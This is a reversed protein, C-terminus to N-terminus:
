DNLAERFRSFQNSTQRYIELRSLEKPSYNNQVFSFTKPTATTSNGNQIAKSEEQAANVSSISIAAKKSLTADIEKAGNMVDTLDIVPRITPQTDMSSNVVSSVKKIANKMSEIANRGVSASADAVYDSMNDFGIAMGEDAYQGLEIFKKSPSHSKIAKQAAEYAANAMAAAAAAVEAIKSQIGETYGSSANRGAQVFMARCSNAEAVTALITAYIAGIPALRKEVIGQAVGETIYNGVERKFLKSPSAIEAEERAAMETETIMNQAATQAMSSNESIGTAFGAVIQNGSDKALAAQAMSTKVYGTISNMSGDFNKAFSDLNVSVGGYLQSLQSETDTRISGMQMSAANRALAYKQDYLGAYQTLQQDTMGNLAQLEALSDIGMKNIAQKLGDDTIRQNLSTIVNNYQAYETVQDQLNKVLSSSSVAEKQEVASFLNSQGMLADTNQNLTDTYKQWIEITQSLIGKEFEALSMGKYKSADVGNQRIQLLKAWYDTEEITRLTHATKRAAIQQDETNGAKETVSNVADSGSQASGKLSNWLNGYDQTIQSSGSSLADSAKGAVSSFVNKTTDYLDKAGKTIGNEAGKDVYEGSKETKWSPSHVGLAENLADILGLGIKSVSQIVSQKKNSLGNMFGDIFYEGSKTTEKSPSHEDLAKNFASLSMSGVSSAAMKAASSKSSIGNIFGVIMNQGSIYFSNKLGNMTNVTATVLNKVASSIFSTKTTIGDSIGLVLKTGCLYFDNYKSLIQTETNSIATVLGSFGTKSLTDVAGSFSSVSTIDIGSMNKVMDIISTIAGSMATLQTVNLGFVSDAYSKFRPGFKSLELGFTSLSSDGSVLDKIGGVSPIKTAFTSIVSAANISNTVVEADLGTVSKAYAM